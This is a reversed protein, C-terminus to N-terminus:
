EPPLINFSEVVARVRTHPDGELRVVTRTAYEATVQYNNVHGTAPDIDLPKLAQGYAYIVFRPEGVRLLSLIQQPIQEYAFDDMGWQKQEAANTNIFPSKTTLAPVNQILEGISELPLRRGQNDVHNTQYKHIESWIRALASNTFPQNGWPEILWEDYKRQNYLQPTKLSNSLVLVGSLLASWTEMNTQNISVLGSSTREDLATTFMDALKWDNTPHTRSVEYQQGTKPDTALALDVSQNHWYVLPAIEPKFYITQWPTGRHVRGLLGINALRNTPFQWDESSFMGADKLSLDYDTPQPTGSLTRGAWPSYRTNMGGPTAPAINTAAQTPKFYHNTPAEFRLDEVHYHVLPDNAQWVSVVVLKAAPNFPAQMATLSNTPLPSPDGPRAPLNLFSRFRRIAAEKDNENPVATQSFAKWDTASLPYLTDGAAIDIQQLIGRPPDTPSYRNTNWVGVLTSPTGPPYTEDRGSLLERTLDVNLDDNLLVFDVMTNGESLLCTMRNSLTLYWSPMPYDPVSEFVNTNIPVFRNNLLSYMSSPLFTNTGTTPLIFSAPNNLTVGIGAWTGSLVNTPPASSGSNTQYFLGYQNTLVSTTFNSVTITIPRQYTNKYPNWLEVIFKNTVGLTYMMNTATPDAGPNPKTIQLKRSVLFEAQMAFENFNPFGKKAGIVLPIGNTNSNLWAGLTSVRNDNTFGVIYNVGAILGTGFLPRFVPPYFNTSGAAYINAAEQLIRHVATSYRNTPYVPIETIARIVFNTSPNLENSQALFIRQAVNTFFAVALEPAADWAVFNTAYFNTGPINAHRDAYNLNIKDNVDSGPQTGLQALMRYYVSGNTQGLSNLRRIANTLDTYFDLTVKNSRSDAYDFLEQPHFYHNTTEAGAWRLPKLPVDDDPLLINQGLPVGNFGDSYVDISAPMFGNPVADVYTQAVSAADLPGVGVPPNTPWHHRYNVLSRADAFAIGRAEPKGNVRNYTYDWVIPDMEHLFAGLNLEWPGFGQNRMYGYGPNPSTDNHITNLDLEKGVPLVVYAYRMKFYNTRSHGFWPRDLVGLWIPDGYPRNTPNDPDDFYGNRNLDLFVDVTGNGNISNFVPPIEGSLPRIISGNLLYYGYTPPQSVLFDFALLNTERLIRETIKAIAHQYGIEAAHEADTQNQRVSVAARNRRATALFVVTVITIIALMILTLVLAVGRQTVPSRLRGASFM